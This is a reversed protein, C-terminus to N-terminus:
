QLALAGPIDGLVDHQRACQYTAEAQITADGAAAAPDAAAPSLAMAKQDAPGDGIWSTDSAAQHQARAAAIARARDDAPALDVAITYAGSAAKPLTASVSIRWTAPASSIPPYATEEGELGGVLNLGHE